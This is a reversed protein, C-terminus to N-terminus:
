LDFLSLLGSFASSANMLKNFKFYNRNVPRVDPEDYLAKLYGLLDRLETDQKNEFFNIIPIGNDVNAQFSYTANDVLVVQSLDRNGFIRLDKIFMGSWTICSERHFKYDFLENYPDIWKCIPEMYDKHSATFLIIECDKKLERLIERAYPRINVGAKSKSGDPFSMDIVVDCPSRWNNNTHILTEDLDFIITKKVNRKPRPLYVMKPTIQRMPIKPLFKLDKM